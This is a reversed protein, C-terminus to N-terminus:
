PRQQLRALDAQLSDPYECLLQQLTQQAQEHQGSLDLLRAYRLLLEPRRPLHPDKILTALWRAARQPERYREALQLLLDLDAPELRSLADLESLRDAMTGLLGWDHQATRLGQLLHDIATERDGLLLWIEGARLLATPDPQPRRLLPQLWRLAEDPMGDRLCADAHQLLHEREGQAGAGWLLALMLGFAFGGLHAWYGIEVPHEVGASLIAGLGQWVVWLLVAVWMPVALGWRSVQ